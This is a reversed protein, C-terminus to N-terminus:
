GVGVMMDLGKIMFGTNVILQTILSSAYDKVIMRLHFEQQMRSIVLLYHVYQVNKGMLVFQKEQLIRIKKFVVLHFSRHAM